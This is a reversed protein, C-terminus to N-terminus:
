AAEEILSLDAPAEPQSLDLLEARVAVPDLNLTECLSAFSYPWTRDDSDVWEYAEMYLRQYRIRKAFRFKRLDLIAQTLVALVLRKEPSVARTHHWVHHFQVPLAPEPAVLEEPVGFWM